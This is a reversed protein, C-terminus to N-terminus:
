VIKRIGVVVAVPVGVHMGVNYLILSVDYGLEQPIECFNLM